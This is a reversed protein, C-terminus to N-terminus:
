TRPMLRLELSEQKYGITNFMLTISVKDKLFWHIIWNQKGFYKGKLINIEFYLM